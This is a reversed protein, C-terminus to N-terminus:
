GNPDPPPALKEEILKTYCNTHVPFGFEDLWYDDSGITKGCV